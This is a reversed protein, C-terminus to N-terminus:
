IAKEYGIDKYEVVLCFTLHILGLSKLFSTELTSTYCKKHMNYTFTLANQNWVNASCDTLLMQKEAQLLPM